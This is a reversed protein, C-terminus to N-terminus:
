SYVTCLAVLVKGLWSYRYSDSECSKWWYCCLLDEHRCRSHQSYRSVRKSSWWVQGFSIVEWCWEKRVTGFAFPHWLRVYPENLPLCFFQKKKTTTTKNLLLKKCFLISLEKNAVRKIYLYIISLKKKLCLTSSLRIYNKKWIYKKFGSSLIEVFFNKISLMIFSSFFITELWFLKLLLTYIKKEIYISIFFFNYLIFYFLFNIM